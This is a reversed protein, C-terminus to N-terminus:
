GCYILSFGELLRGGMHGCKKTVCAQNEIHVGGAGRDVFLKCLRVTATTGGFGIDRDAIISKLYDIYPTALGEVRSMSM